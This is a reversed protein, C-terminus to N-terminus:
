PLVCPFASWPEVLLKYLPSRANTIVCDLEMAVSINRMTRHMANCVAPARSGKLIMM